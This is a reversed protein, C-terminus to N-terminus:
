ILREHRSVVKDQHEFATVQNAWFSIARAREPLLEALQYVQAVQSPRSGGAVHNQLRDVVAESFGAEALATAQSRRLDHLVWHQMPDAGRERRITDIREDLRRKAKSVGSAATRGTTTFVFPSNFGSERQKRQIAFLEQLAPEPLHVIHPKDNKTTPIELQRRNFDIWSWQMKLVEDRSRQCLLLVLRIFPGWLDGQYYSAIWIDHIEAISPVRTRPKETGAKQVKIGPDVAIYDRKFCWSTFACIASRLRNAMTKKGEAAKEDVIKQIDGRTLDKIRVQSLPALYTRLQREREDRSQGPKLNRRVHQEIYLDLVELVKRAQAAEAQRSAMDVKAQEIRDLGSRAELEIKLAESRADSLSMEPYRGLTISLRRGGKVKKQFLWSKVGTTTVRFQLGPREADTLTTKGSEPPAISKLLANTLKVKVFSGGPQVQAACFVQISGYLEPCFHVVDM